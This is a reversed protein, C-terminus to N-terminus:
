NSEQRQVLLFIDGELPLYGFEYCFFYTHGTRTVTTHTHYSFNFGRELMKDRHVKAKGGPSLERIIRRNKKLILNINRIVNNTESNQRNNYNNRCQDSCFKKDSRGLIPEGCDLCSKKIEKMRKYINIFPKM